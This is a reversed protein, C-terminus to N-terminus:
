AVIDMQDELHRLESEGAQIAAGSHEVIKMDANPSTCGFEQNVGVVIPKDLEEKSMGKRFILGARAFRLNNRHDSMSQWHALNLWALGELPSKGTMFGTKHLYVTVLTVEGVTWPGNAILVWEDGIKGSQLEWLEWTTENIVRVRKRQQVGHDGVPVSATEAIRIQTLVKKGNVGQEQRWGILDKPDIALLMPHLGLKREEALNAATVSPYDVLIHVLGRRLGIELCHECFATLDRGEDDLGKLMRNLRDPLDKGRTQAPRAFPRGALSDVAAAFREFLVSRELRTNYPGPEEKEERPLWKEGGAKMAATGGMLADILEWAGSMGQYDPNVADIRDTTDSTTPMTM